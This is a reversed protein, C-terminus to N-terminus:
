RWAAAGVGARSLIEQGKALVAADLGLGRYRARVQVDRVRWAVGCESSHLEYTSQAAPQGEGGLHMVLTWRNAPRGQWTPQGLDFDDAPVPHFADVLSGLPLRVVFSVRRAAVWPTALWRYPAAAQVRPALGLLRSRCSSIGDILGVRCGWYLRVSWAPSPGEPVRRRGQREVAVVIGLLDEDYTPDDHCSSSRDPRTLIFRRGDTEGTRIVRHGFLYGSRRGVAIDGVVVEGVTRSEIHLVDGPRVCPYMCTGQARFTSKGRDALAKGVELSTLVLSRHSAVTDMWGM